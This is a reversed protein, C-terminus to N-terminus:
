DIHRNTNSEGEAVLVWLEKEEEKTFEISNSRGTNIFYTGECQGVRHLYKILLERYNM